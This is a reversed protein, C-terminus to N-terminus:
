DNTNDTESRSPDMMNLFRGCLYGMLGLNQKLDNLPPDFRLNYNMEDAEKNYVFDVITKQNSENIFEVRCNEM